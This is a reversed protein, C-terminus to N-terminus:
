PPSSNPKAAERLRAADAPRNWLTYLDALRGRLNRLEDETNSRRLYHREAELLLTEAEEMRGREQVVQALSLMTATVFPHEAAFVRRRIALSARFHEEAEALRGRTREVRGLNGLTMAVLNHEEGHVARFVALAAQFEAEAEALRGTRLLMLGLANTSSAVDPHGPGLLRAQMAIAERVLPEAEAHRNQFSLASAVTAMSSAVSPHEPGYVRQRVALARRHLGESRTLDGDRAAAVSALQILTEAISPHADGHVRQRTALIDQLLAEAADYDGKQHLARALRSHTALVDAHDAGLGTSQIALARRFLTDAEDLEGLAMRTNALGALVRALALSDARSGEGHLALAARFISEAPAYEGKLYRVDALASLDDAVERSRGGLQATHLELGRTILSDARGYNGLSRYVRGMVAFMRAQVLPQEALAATSAMGRELLERATVDVGQTETPDGAEFMGILFDAVQRAEALALEARDREVAAIRAQWMATGLGTLLSALVLAAATVEIRHRRVLKLFRYRRDGRHALVPHGDLFRVIDQRLLDASSYRRGPEKRMAMLVISDLDGSLQRRLQEVTTQREASRQEPTIVGSSGGRSLGIDTRTVRTSPRGPDQECVTALLEAPSYTSLRYPQSGTLLEYLLVGLSYIDSATTISDGRVQEPSAYEPTMVRADFRTVPAHAVSLTPNLLKAIGFDLLRVEGASTILINGPKLDRHIVLNQHAHQVAACVDLFLQLRDEIGLRHRDCYTTIPLGDVYEMVLYPRADETLGGDLLRAIKPHDLGALIQREALFRQHLPDDVNSTAILKIAVRRRYQGDAREALFVTGMGGRGIERIIRYADIREVPPRAQQEFLQEALEHAALLAQVEALLEPNDACASELWVARDAPPHELAAEFFAEIQQRREYDIVIAV